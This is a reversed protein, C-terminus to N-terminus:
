DDVMAMVTPRDRRVELAVTATQRAMAAAHELEPEPPVVGPPGLEPPDGAADGTPAALTSWCWLLAVRL